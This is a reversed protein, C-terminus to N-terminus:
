KELKNFLMELTAFLLNASCPKNIFALLPDGKGSKFRLKTKSAIIFPITTSYRARILKYIAEGTAGPMILESIIYDPKVRELKNIVMDGRDLETVNHGLQSLIRRIMMRDLANDDIILANIEKKDADEKTPPPAAPAVPSIPPPAPTTAAPATAPPAPVANKVVPEPQTPQAMEPSETEVPEASQTPLDLYAIGILRIKDTTKPRHALGRLKLVISDDQRQALRCDLALEKVRGLAFNIMVASAAQADDPHLMKIFAGYTNDYKATQGNSLVALLDASLKFPTDPMIPKGPEIMLSWVGANLARLVRNQRSELELLSAVEEREATVESVVGYFRFMSATPDAQDAPRLRRISMVFWRQVNGNNYEERCRFYFHSRDSKDKSMDSLLTRLQGYDATPMVSEWMSFDTSLDKDDCGIMSILGSSYWIPTKVDFSEDKSLIISWFALDSIRQVLDLDVLESRLMKDMNAIETVDSGMCVGGIVSGEVGMLPGTHFLFDGGFNPENIITSVIDSNKLSIKMPCSDPIESTSHALRYCPNGECTAPSCAVYQAMMPNARLVNYNKTNVFCAIPLAQFIRGWEEIKNNLEINLPEVDSLGGAVGYIEDPKNDTMERSAVIMYEIQEISDNVGPKRVYVGLGTDNLGARPRSAPISSSSYLAEFAACIKNYPKPNSTQDPGASLAQGVSMGFLREVMPNVYSFRKHRFNFVWLEEKPEEERVSLTLNKASALETAVAIEAQLMVVEAELQMLEFQLEENPSTHLWDKM